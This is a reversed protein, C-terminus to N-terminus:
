CREPWDEPRRNAPRPVHSTIAQLLGAVRDRAGTFFGSVGGEREKQALTPEDRAGLSGWDPRVRISSMMVTAITEMRAVAAMGIARKWTLRVLSRSSRRSRHSIRAAM